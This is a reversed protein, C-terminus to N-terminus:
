GASAIIAYGTLVFTFLGAYSEGSHTAGRAQCDEM